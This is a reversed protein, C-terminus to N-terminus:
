RLRLRYAEVLEAGPPRFDHEPVREFGMATYMQIAARFSRSTHLGIAEAGAGRARRICEDMLARAIGRGRRDPRVAVLRVEPWSVRLRDDAYATSSAPYLMASGVLTGNEEAVIRAAPADADLAGQMADTFAQWATPEMVSAFEAYALRTLAAIADHEDPRANRIGVTV